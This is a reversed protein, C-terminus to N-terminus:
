WDKLLQNAADKYSVKKKTVPKTDADSPLKEEYQTQDAGKFKVEEVIAPTDTKTSDTKPADTKQTSLIPLMNLLMAQVPDLTDAVQNNCQTKSGSCEAITPQDPQGREPVESEETSVEMKIDPFLKDVRDSHEHRAENVEFNNKIAPEDPSGDLDFENEGIKVPKNRIQARTRRPYRYGSKGRDKFTEPIGFNMDNKDSTRKEDSLAGEDLENESIKAPKNGLRARTRRPQNVIPKEKVTNNGSSSGRKRKISRAPLNVLRRNGAAAYNKSWKERKGASPSADRNEM